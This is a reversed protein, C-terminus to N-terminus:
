VSLKELYENQVTFFANHELSYVLSKFRYYKSPKIYVIVLDDNMLHSKNVFTEDKTMEWAWFGKPLKLSFLQLKARRGM